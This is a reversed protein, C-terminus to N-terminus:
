NNDFILLSSAFGTTSLSVFINRRSINDTLQGVQKNQPYDGSFGKGAEATQFLVEYVLSEPHSYVSLLLQRTVVISATLQPDSM